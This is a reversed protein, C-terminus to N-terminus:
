HAKEEPNWCASDFQRMKNNKDFTEGIKYYGELISPYKDNMYQRFDQSRNMRRWVYYSGLFIGIEVGLFLKVWTGRSSSTPYKRLM